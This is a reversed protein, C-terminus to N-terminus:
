RGGGRLLAALQDRQDATLASADLVKAIAAVPDRAAAPGVPEVLRELELVPIRIIRPGPRVAALRGAAIWKRVTKPAVDLWEAAETVTIHTRPPLPKRRSM